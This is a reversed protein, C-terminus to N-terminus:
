LKRVKMQNTYLQEGLRQLEALKTLESNEGGLHTYAWEIWSRQYDLLQHVAAIVKGAQLGAVIRDDNSHATSCTVKELPQGKQQLAYAQHIIERISAM